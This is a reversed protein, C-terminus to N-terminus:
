DDLAAVLAAQIGVQEVEDMTKTDVIDWKAGQKVLDDDLQKLFQAAQHDKGIQLFQIGYEGDGNELKNAFNIITKAVASQDQPAGDTVVLLMEGNAKTQGAAKRKLYDGFAAELVPALVTGGNPENEQFIQTVTSSKCNEYVKYSGAFPIVTFGDPDFGEIKRAVAETSEKAADWRSMGGICDNTSMSGSKDMILVYDRNALRSQTESM